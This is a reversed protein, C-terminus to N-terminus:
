LLFINLIPHGTLYTAFLVILLIDILTNNRFLRSMSVQFVTLILFNLLVFLSETFSHKVFLPLLLVIYFIFIILNKSFIIKSTKHPSIKEIYDINYFSLKTLFKNIFLTFLFMTPLLFKFIDDNVLFLLIWLLFIVFISIKNISNSFLYSDKQVINLFSLNKEVQSFSIKDPTLKLNNQSFDNVTNTISLERNIPIKSLFYTASIFVLLATVKNIWFIPFIPKQLSITDLRSKPLYGIAFQNTGSINQNIIFDLENIGLIGLMIKDNLMIIIFFVYYITYKLFGNKIYFEMLYCICSNIFIFPVSFYLLPLIFYFSAVSFNQIFITINLIFLFTIGVFFLGIIKYLAKFFHSLPSIETQVYTFNLIEKEREGALTYILLWSIIVNSCIASLNGIWFKNPEPSSNGVYFTVYDADKGPILFLGLVVLIFICFIFHKKQILYKYYLISLNFLGSM